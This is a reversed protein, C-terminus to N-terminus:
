DLREVLDNRKHALDLQHSFYEIQRKIEEPSIEQSKTKSLKKKASDM